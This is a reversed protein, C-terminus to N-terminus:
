EEDTEEQGHHGDQCASKDLLQAGFVHLAGIGTRGRVLAPPHPSIQKLAKIPEVYPPKHVADVPKQM